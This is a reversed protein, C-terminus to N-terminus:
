AAAADAAAYINPSGVALQERLFREQPKESATKPIASVVQLFSPVANRELVRRCHAFV